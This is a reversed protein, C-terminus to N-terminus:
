RSHTVTVAFELGPAPRLGADKLVADVTAAKEQDPVTVRLSWAREAIQVAVVQAGAQELKRVLDAQVAQPDAVRLELAGAGRMVDSGDDHSGPGFQLAVAIGLVAVAAFSLGKQWASGFLLSTLGDRLARLGGTDKTETAPPSRRVDPEAQQTPGPDGVEALLGSARLRQLSAAVLAQDEASLSTAAENALRISEADEAELMLRRIEAGLRTDASGGGEPVPRGALAAYFDDTDQSM